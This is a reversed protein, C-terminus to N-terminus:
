ELEKIIQETLKQPDLTQCRSIQGYPCSREPKTLTYVGYAKNALASTMHTSGTDGGLHGKSGSIVAMLQPLSTKGVITKADGPNQSNVEEFVASDSPAGIFVTQVGNSNLERSVHAFNEPAWRKTIWGAGANMVFYPKDPDIGAEILITKAESIDTETPHLTHFDALEMAGLARAVDLYQDAVHLSTPDPKVPASFLRAGERQWHFGLKKKSKAAATMLGSKLLGQLDLVAEFEGLDKTMRWMEGMDKPRIVVRDVSPCREVIPAFAKDVAWVVEGEPYNLKLTKAVPLGCIVDGMSSLKVVLVRM